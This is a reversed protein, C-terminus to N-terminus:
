RLLLELVRATDSLDPLAFEAGSDALEEATFRGTGVGLAKAGAGHAAEVDLPTDGLVIVEASGADVDFLAALEAVGAAVLEARVTHHDGFGGGAFRDWLGFHGLKHAAGRRMNGTALGLIADESELATLLARVGPLVVGGKQAIWGPLMELYAEGFREFNALLADGGLGHRELVEFFIGRDTRGDFLIGETAHEVGFERAFALEMAGRGAGQTKVMTMDIDFLLIRSM